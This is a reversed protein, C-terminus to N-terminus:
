LPLPRRTTRVYVMLSLLLGNPKPLRSKLFRRWRNKLHDQHEVVRVSLASMEESLRATNSSLTAIAATVSVHDTDVREKLLKMNNNTKNIVKILERTTFALSQQLDSLMSSITIGIQTKISLVLKTEISSVIKNEVTYIRTVISQELPHLDDSFVPSSVPIANIEAITDNTHRTLDEIADAITANTHRVLDEPTTSAANNGPLDELATTDVDTQGLQAFRNMTTPPSHFIVPPIADRPNATHRGDHRHVVTFTDVPSHPPLLLPQSLNPHSESEDPTPPNDDRDNNFDPDDPNVGQLCLSQRRREDSDDRTTAM